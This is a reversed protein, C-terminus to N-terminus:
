KTGMLFAVTLLLLASVVERWEIKVGVINQFAIYSVVISMIWYPFEVLWWAKDAQYLYWTGYTFLPISVFKLLVWGFADRWRGQEGAQIFYAEAYFWSLTALFYALLSTLVKAWYGM